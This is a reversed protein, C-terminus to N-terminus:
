VTVAVARDTSLEVRQIKGVLLLYSLIAGLAHAGVFVLAGNFSHTEKLIYGIVIPTTIGSINGFMNFLSGSLGAIEKPSTDSVVAWGLAGFGKGLFALAMIGVILWEANIYNCAVMSVSMLMGVVIPLKRAFTLSHGRRLLRDSFLGGFIGGGFGCLAPISAVFGVKLISMGRAQVLYIPFWTLFFATVTAICYQGLYVGLLMRSALLQKLYSWKPGGRGGSVKVDMDVLGGGQEIYHLESSNVRPHDKPSHVVKFWLLSLATGLAGMFWFVRPWGFAHTIWGMIPSFLVLAFYQSSNFISSATGRESTPFWAAVIRGNAPFIPSEVLGLFLRLAFLLVFVGAFAGFHGIWGQMFAFASWLVISIGYINRSGFRDLLWGGPIQGLVYAWSFASLLYGLAVPDLHLDKSLSTGVISLTARDAYNVTTTLFLMFVILYRVHSRSVEAHQGSCSV